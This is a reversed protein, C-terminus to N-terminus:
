KIIKYQIYPLNELSNILENTIDIKKERSLMDLSFYDGNNESNITFTLKCNGKSKGNFIKDIKEIFSKNVDDSHISINLEKIMKERLESLLKVETVKLETQNPDNWRPQIKGTIFLMYEEELYNKWKIYDDSFFYFDYTDEYDELKIIGYPKGNKSIRHEVNSVLGGIKVNERNNTIENDKLLRLNSNCFNELEFKHRDLPHGSIYLGLINKEIKQKERKSYPEIEPISPLPIDIGNNGGFLSTQKSEKEKQVKGSYQIAKEILSYEGDVSYIYQRRNINKFCDFAGAQSLAEYTKKNVARSNTRIAFDFVDKFHGNKNREELISNVASEGTGKVAGIGFLIEGSKNCIFDMESQNVDPGLVKIKAKRCEDMFYSIKEINNQNHTLVAAMYESIFNAKMYTTKYAISSYCTSHSKNFAYEAFSQWDQWIKELKEKNINNKKGGEFFKPQLKSLLKSDKKGMAKRLHDAEGKSFNAIKQSILMVQEQYVTIGFTEGLFEKMEPLDYEIEEKGHKRAIYNPIYEMPGPRYLANMAILDEFRDPKLAKLHKQMGTSEFQFTANTYGKQYMKFTKKDDLPIQDLNIEINHNTKVNKVATNLISLTKLGLFDMKLMGASEIVSNDFQTILLESDKSKSVPIYEVLEEPTIIIGCAHTGVNRLSGEIVEAQRLVESELNNTKRYDSLDSVEKFSDILSIGPREPVLKALKDTDPLSLELVRGSDRIASKAAMTGYTIIQAVKEYGYKSIVYDIIKDRGIDDFDIDIDPLSIRDPNLFREFLLNYKIPDINTIGICYAVVSGAASGRGPGVTVGLEKAKNTIDQVILFYGPYGINKITELEFNIREELTKNVNSYKKKAGKFALRKLYANEGVQKNESNFFEKPIKFKPLVVERKLDYIEIKEIIESINIISEPIDQFLLKMEEQSKFYFENNPFGFRKGRGKGIETAKYEGQKICLLIDHADSDKKDLYYVDNGAILKVHYKKAFSILVENLHNEEDLGHRLLELYYDDKFTDLWWKLEEEAKEEGFNLILNPIIGNLGGSIAILNDSFKKILEKDIRPFLGYLGETYGLSSLKTLNKYGEKNKALLIQNTRKDPNDRTFKTKKRDESLFFECGVIPKIGNIKAEKVFKFAGFMNGLDTIAVAPMKDKVAKKIINEISSTAQLISYHSHNHLHVFPESISIKSDKKENLSVKTEKKDFNSEKLKVSVYNINEADSDETKYIKRKLLEFFCKATANVDASADHADSFDNEFLIKHLETLKPMKFKRGLGGKLQCFDKSILGTDVSKKELIDTEINCRFFEAGLINIDFNINHGIIYKNNELEQNFQKLIKELKKGEEIAKETSIGHIKQSNYPITFNNPKIIFCESSILNGAKDNVQWAIQVMRPWNDSDSVPATYNKPLGTTETDFTLYM